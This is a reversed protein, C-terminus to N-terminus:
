GTLVHPPPPTEYVGALLVGVTTVIVPARLEAGTMVCDPVVIDSRGTILERRLRLIRLARKVLRASWLLRDSFETDGVVETSIALRGISSVPVSSTLLTRTLIRSAGAVSALIM